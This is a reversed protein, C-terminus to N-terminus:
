AAYAKRTKADRVCADLVVMIAKRMEEPM